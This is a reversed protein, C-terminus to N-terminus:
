FVFYIFQREGFKGFMLITLVLVIYLSWRLSWHYQAFMHRISGHRQILHVIEMFAIAGIVILFASTEQDMLLYKKLYETDWSFLKQWWEGLNVMSSRIIYLADRFSRARFFVWAICTLTFTTLVKFAKHLNPARFLGIFRAAKERPVATWRSFLIYFGNLAGWFVFTWNAGHWLGSILFTVFINFQHRPQSMRNGGLPIYVYDRFWTSLSIHWRSWFEAISKSFYPRRFNDMLRFGLMQATGIAIDSYGSFDCYIQFAFFVTAIILPMGTFREPADYVYDVYAALRDAIVVKKFMGWAALKLGDTADRYNFDHREYFQGLLNPAREIPGAVLQPFFMVFLFYQFFNKEAPFKKRYVDIAYGMAQFTYFSIGLPLVINLFPLAADLGFLGGARNVSDTFFNFYKFFGLIALNSALSALLFIKRKHPSETRAMLLAAGYDLSVSFLVLLIFVPKWAMYFYISALLLLWNRYRCPILFHLFFVLPFFVLFQLSNFLM